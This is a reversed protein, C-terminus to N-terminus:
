SRLSARLRAVRAQAALRDQERQWAAVDADVVALVKRRIAPARQRLHVDRLAPCVDELARELAELDRVAQQRREFALRQDELEWAAQAQDLAALEARLEALTHPPAFTAASKVSLVVCGRNAQGLPETFSYERLDVQTIARVTRGNVQRWDAQKTLFGISLGPAAGAALCEACMALLEDGRQTKFIRTVTHLGRGDPTISVPRGIPVQSTDHRWFVPFEAAKRGRLSADFAGPLIVDGHLDPAPGWTSAYGWIERRRKDVGADDAKLEVQITDLESM